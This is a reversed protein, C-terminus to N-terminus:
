DHNHYVVVVVQYLAVSLRLVIERDVEPARRAMKSLGEICLNSGFWRSEVGTRESSLAWGLGRSTM